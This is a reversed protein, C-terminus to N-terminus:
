GAEYSPSSASKLRLSTATHKKLTISRKPLQMPHIHAYAFNRSWFNWFMQRTPAVTDFPITQTNHTGCTSHTGHSSSTGCDCCKCSQVVFQQSIVGAFIPMSGLLLFVAFCVHQITSMDGRHFWWFQILAPLWAYGYVATQFMTLYGKIQSTQPSDRFHALTNDGSSQLVWFLHLGDGAEGGFISRNALAKLAFNSAAFLQGFCFVQSSRGWLMPITLYAGCSVVVMVLWPLLGNRTFVWQLRSQFALVAFFPGLQKPLKPKADGARATLQQQTLHEVQEYDFACRICRNM